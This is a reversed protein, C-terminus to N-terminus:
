DALPDERNRRFGANANKGLGPIPHHYSKTNQSQTESFDLPEAYSGPVSQRSRGKTPSAHRPVRPPQPEAGPGTSFGEENGYSFDRRSQRVNSRTESANTETYDTGYFQAESQRNLGGVRAPREHRYARVDQDHGGEWKEEQVQRIKSAKAGKKAKAKEKMVPAESSMDTVSETGGTWSSGDDSYGQGVVSGGGLKTSKTANSLTTGNPGKRRLVTSKYEEWDNKKWQFGGNKAWFFFWIALLCFSAGILAFAAQVGKMNINTPDVGGSAPNTLHTPTAADRAVLVNTLPSDLTSTTDRREYVHAFDPASTLAEREELSLYSLYTPLDFPESRPDLELSSVQLDSIKPSVPAM